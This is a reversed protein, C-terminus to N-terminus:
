EDNGKEFKKIFANNYNNWFRTLYYSVLNEGDITIEFTRIPQNSMKKKSIFDGAYIIKDKSKFTSDTLTIECYNDLQSANIVRLSQRDLGMCDTFDAFKFTHFVDLFANNIMVLQKYDLRVKGLIFLNLLTIIDNVKNVLFFNFTNKKSLKLVEIIRSTENILFLYKEDNTMAEFIANDYISKPKTIGLESFESLDDTDLIEVMHVSTFHMYASVLSKYQENKM